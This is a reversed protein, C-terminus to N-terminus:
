SYTRFVLFPFERYKRRLPLTNYSPYPSNEFNPTASYEWIKGLNKLEYKRM